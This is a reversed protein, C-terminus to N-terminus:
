QMWPNIEMEKAFGGGLQKGIKVKIGEPNFNSKYNKGRLYKVREEEELMARSEEHSM